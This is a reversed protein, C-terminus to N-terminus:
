GAGDVQISCRDGGELRCASQHVSLSEGYHDGVGLILGEALHCLRRPSEYELVMSGDPGDHDTFDPVTAGPYLKRVEPHIIHNVTPLFGRSDDHADFFEPYRRHFGPIALRGITRLVDPIALELRASTADVLLELERDPYNGLSTYAGDVGATALLDDWTDAGWQDVVIEEVLNFLIGKVV